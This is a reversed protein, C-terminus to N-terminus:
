RHRLRATGSKWDLYAARLCHGCPRYGASLAEQESAFFVRNEALMRKGSRCHLSGYIKLKRNGAFAVKGQAILQQLTRSRGFGPPGLVTHRIM